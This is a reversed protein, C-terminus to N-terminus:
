REPVQMSMGRLPFYYGAKTLPTQSFFNIKPNMYTYIVESTM